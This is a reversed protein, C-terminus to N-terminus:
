YLCSSSPDSSSARRLGANLLSPFTSSHLTPPSFAMPTPLASHTVAATQTWAQGFTRYSGTQTVSLLWVSKSNTPLIGPKCCSNRSWLFCKYATNRVEGLLDGLKLELVDWQVQTWYGGRSTKVTLTLINRSLNGAHTQSDRLVRQLRCKTCKGM